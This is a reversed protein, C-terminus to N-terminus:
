LVIDLRHSLQHVPAQLLSFGYDGCTAQEHDYIQTMNSFIFVQIFVVYILNDLYM